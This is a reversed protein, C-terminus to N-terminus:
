NECIFLSTYHYIYTPHHSDHVGLSKFSPIFLSIFSLIVRVRLSFYHTFTDTYSVSLDRWQPKTKFWLEFYETFRIFLFCLQQNLSINNNENLRFRYQLTKLRKKLKDYTFRSYIDSVTRSKYM